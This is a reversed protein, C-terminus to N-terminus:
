GTAAPSRTPSNVRVGAPTASCSQSQRPGEGAAMARLVDAGTSLSVGAVIEQTEPGGYDSSHLIFGRRPMVPGGYYLVATGSAGEGAVGFASLLASLPGRGFVRNVILGMAGGDDDAVIYVVSEAFRPDGLQPTAVLFQGVLGQAPLRARHAGAEPSHLPVFVIWALALVHVVSTFRAGFVTPRWRKAM